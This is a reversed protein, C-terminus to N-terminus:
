NATQRVVNRLATGGRIKYIDLVLSQLCYELQHAGEQTKAVKLDVAVTEAATTVSYARLARLAESSALEQEKRRGIRHIGSGAVAASPQGRAERTLAEAEAAAAVLCRVSALQCTTLSRRLSASFCPLLSIM